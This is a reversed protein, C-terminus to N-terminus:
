TVTGITFLNRLNYNQLFLVGKAKLIKLINGEFIKKILCVFM